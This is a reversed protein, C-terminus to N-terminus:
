DKTRSGTKNSGPNNEYQELRTTLENAFTAFNQMEDRDLTLWIKEIAQEREQRLSELVRKGKATLVYSRQRGDAKSLTVSVFDKDLLQRLTKSVAAASSERTKAFMSPMFHERSIEELVGWQGDSLGVSAALEERRRQFASTLRGLCAIAEHALAVSARNSAM